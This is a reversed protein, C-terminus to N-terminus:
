GDHRLVIGLFHAGQCIICMVDNPVGKSNVLGAVTATSTKMESGGTVKVRSYCRSGINFGNMVISIREEPEVKKRLFEMLSVVRNDGHHSVGSHQWACLLDVPFLMATYKDSSVGLTELARVKTELQDYLFPLQYIDQMFGPITSQILYQSTQTM